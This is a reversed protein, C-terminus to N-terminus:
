KHKNELVEKAYPDLIRFYLNLIFTQIREKLDGKTNKVLSVFEDNNYVQSYTDFFRISDTVLSLISAM